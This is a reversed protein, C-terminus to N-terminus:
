KLRSKYMTSMSSYTYGYSMQSILIAYLFMLKYDKNNLPLLFSGRNLHLLLLKTLHSALTM